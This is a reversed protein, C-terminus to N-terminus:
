KKVDKASSMQEPLDMWHPELEEANKEYMHLFEYKNSISDLQENLFAHLQEVNGLLVDGKIIELVVPVVGASIMNIEKAAARTLDIVLGRGYPGRDTVTVITSLGNRQNTVKLVTGFPLTRHACTFGNQNFVSGDASRKGHFFDAYFTAKGKMMHQARITGFISMGFWLLAMMTWRRSHTLHNM